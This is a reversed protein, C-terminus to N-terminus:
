IRVCCERACRSSRGIAGQRSGRTRMASTCRPRSTAGNMRKRLPYQSVWKGVHPDFAVLDYEGNGHWPEDPNGYFETVHGMYGWLLFYGGADDVYRFASSRRAGQPDQAVRTWTNM